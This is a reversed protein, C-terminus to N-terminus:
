VTIFQLQCQLAYSSGETRNISLQKCQIMHSSNKLAALFQSCQGFSGTANLQHYTSARWEKKQEKEKIFSTISLGAKKAEDFVISLQDQQISKQNSIMRDIDSALEDLQATEKQVLHENQVMESRKQELQTLTAREYQITSELLPNLFYYWGGGIISLLGITLGYRYLPKKHVAWRYWSGKQPVFYM